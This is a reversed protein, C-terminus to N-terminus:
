DVVSIKHGTQLLSHSGNKIILKAEGLELKSQYLQDLLQRM